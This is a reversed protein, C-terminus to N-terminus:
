RWARGRISMTCNRGVILPNRRGDPRPTRGRNQRGFPTIDLFTFTNSPQEVGRQSTFYTQYIQEGRRLFVSLGFSQKEATVFDEYFSTGFSSYWPFSWGMRTKVREIEAVRARSVVAFTSRRAHLHELRGIHDCYLSCGPCIHSSDPKLMNFYLILQARGEFLAVFPVTGAPSGFTYPQEIRTMPMRRRRANLADHARTLAKEEQRMAQLQQQWEDRSVIDPYNM